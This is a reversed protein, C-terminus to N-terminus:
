YLIYYLLIIYLLTYSIIIYYYYLIYYIITYYYIIYYIITYYYLLIHIIIYYIIYYYLIVGYTLGARVGIVIWWSLGARFLVGARVDFSLRIGDFGLIRLSFRINKFYLGFWGSRYFM